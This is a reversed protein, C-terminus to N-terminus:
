EAAEAEEVNGEGEDPEEVEGGDLVAHLDAGLKRTTANAENAVFRNALLRLAKEAKSASAM